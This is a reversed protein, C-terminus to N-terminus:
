REDTVGGRSTHGTPIWPPGPVWAFGPAGSRISGHLLPWPPTDRERWGWM